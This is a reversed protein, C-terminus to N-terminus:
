FQVLSGMVLGPISGACFATLLHAVGTPWEPVHARRWIVGLWRRFLDGYSAGRLRTAKPAQIHTM